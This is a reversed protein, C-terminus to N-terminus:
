GHARELYYDQLMRWREEIMAPTEVGKRAELIRASQAAPILPARALEIARLMTRAVKEIKHAMVCTEAVTAGTVVTGHNKLLLANANGLAAAVEDGLAPSAISAAENNLMPLRGTLSACDQDLPEVEIGLAAMLTSDVPHAHLVCQTAPRAGYVRAHIPWERVGSSQAPFDLRAGDFGIVILDDPRLKWWSVPRPKILIRRNDLRASL